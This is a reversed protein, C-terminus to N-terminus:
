CNCQQKQKLHLLYVGLVWCLLKPLWLQAAQDGGPVLQIVLKEDMKTGDWNFQALPGINELDQNAEDTHQTFCMVCVRVCALFTPTTPTPSITSHEQVGRIPQSLSLHLHALRLQLQLKVSRAVFSM